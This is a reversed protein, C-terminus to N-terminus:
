VSPPHPGLRDSAQAHIHDDPKKREIRQAALTARLLM